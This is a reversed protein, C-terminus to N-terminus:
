WGVKASITLRTWLTIEASEFDDGKRYIQAALVEGRLEILEQAWNDLWWLPRFAIAVGVGFRAEDSYDVLAHSSEGGRLALSFDACGFWGGIPRLGVTWGLSRKTDDQNDWAVSVDAEMLYWSKRFQFAIDATSLMDPGILEIGFSARAGFRIDSEASSMHNDGRLQIREPQDTIAVRPQTVPPTSAAGMMEPVCWIAAKGKLNTVVARAWKGSGGAAIMANARQWDLDLQLKHSWGGNADTTGVVVPMKGTECRRVGSPVARPGGTWDPTADRPLTSMTIPTSDAPKFTTNDQGATAVGACFVVFLTFIAVRFGNM